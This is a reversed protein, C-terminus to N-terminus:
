PSRITVTFGTFSAGVNSLSVIEVGCFVEKKPSKVSVPSKSTSPVVNVAVVVGTTAGM